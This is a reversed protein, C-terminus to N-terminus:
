IVIQSVVCYVRDRRWQFTCIEAICIFLKAVFMLLILPRSETVEAQSLQSFITTGVFLDPDFM